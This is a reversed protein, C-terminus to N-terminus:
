LMLEKVITTIPQIQLPRSRPSRSLELQREGNKLGGQITDRLARLTISSKCESLLDLEIERLILWKGGAM